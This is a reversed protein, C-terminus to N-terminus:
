LQWCSGVCVGTCTTIPKSDDATSPAARPHHHWPHHPVISARVTAVWWNNWPFLAFDKFFSPSNTRIVSQARCLGVGCIPLLANPQQDLLPLLCVLFNFFCCVLLLNESTSASEGFKCVGRVLALSFVLFVTLFPTDSHKFNCAIIRIMIM